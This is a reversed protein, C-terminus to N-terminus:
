FDTISVRNKASEHVVIYIDSTIKNVNIRFSEIMFRLAEGENLDARSFGTGIVPILVPFGQAEMNIMEIMKQIALVYDQKSAYANLNSDFWTM